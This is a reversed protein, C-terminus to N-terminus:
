SRGHRCREGVAGAVFLDRFLDPRDFPKAPEPLPDGGLHASRLRHARDVRGATARGALVDGLEDVGSREAFYPGEGREDVLHGCGVGAGVAAADDAPVGGEVAPRDGHGHVVVAHGGGGPPAGALGGPQVLHRKLLV